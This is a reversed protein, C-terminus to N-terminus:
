GRNQHSACASGFTDRLIKGLIRNKWSQSKRAEKHKQIVIEVVTRLSRKERRWRGNFERIQPSSINPWNACGEQQYQDMLLPCDGIELVKLSVPLTDWPLSVLNSCHAVTLLKLSSFGRFGPLSVLRSCRCILMEELSRLDQGLLGQCLSTLEHCDSIDLKALSPGSSSSPSLSSSSRAEGFAWFKPLALLGVNSLGLYKLVLPLPPLQRLKPCDSIDLYLLSILGQFGERSLSELDDCGHIILKKLAKLNKTLLGKDLSKLYPCGSIELISLSTAAAASSSIDTSSTLGNTPYESIDPLISLGVESLKLEVLTPPLVPLQKLNQCSIVTLKRLNVLHRFTDTPLSFMRPCNSITLENLACLHYPILKERVQNITEQTCYSVKLSNSSPSVTTNSRDSLDLKITITLTDISVQALTFPLPPFQSMVQSSWIRLRKLRPFLTGSYVEDGYFQFNGSKHGGDMTEMELVELSQLQGLPPLVEWNRCGDLRVFRLSVLSQDLMWQPSRVGGYNKITLEKLDTPPRLGELIEEDLKSEIMDLRRSCWELNLGDIYHKEHLKVEGAENGSAVNELGSISLKGQLENLDKLQGIERGTEGSIRFKKLKQLSTLKGIGAIEYVKDGGDVELHRLNILNTVGNPLTHLKWSDELRLNQLNHLKSLSEPLRVINHAFIHLYRLHSLSCISDPFNNSCIGCLHSPFICSWFGHASDSPKAIRSLDLVRLNRLMKFLKQLDHVSLSEDPNLFILSRLKPLRHLYRLLEPSVTSLSLHRVNRPFPLSSRDKLSFYEDRSVSQALDHMSDHMMFGGRQSSQFFSRSLLAEFYDSGIDEMRETGQVKIFGLAMWIKILRTKDFVYGKPFVACYAFCQKLPADLQEYSLRLVSIVNVGNEERLQSIETESLNSWRRRNSLGFSRATDGLAKAALPMGQAKNAIEKGIKELPNCDSPSAGAFAIKRFISWCEKDSMPELIIQTTPVNESLASRNRTTMIVKSGRLGCNLPQFLVQWLRQQEDWVDDLVILSRKNNLEQALRSQLSDLTKLYPRFGAVSEIMDGLLRIEDLRHSVHAWIRREFHGTVEQHNFVVQALTTKGLGGM